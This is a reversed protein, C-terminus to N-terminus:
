SATLHEVGGKTDPNGSAIHYLTYYETTTTNGGNARTALHQGTPRYM